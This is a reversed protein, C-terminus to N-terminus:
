LMGRYITELFEDRWTKIDAFDLKHSQITIPPFFGSLHRLINARPYLFILASPFLARLFKPVCFYPCAFILARPFLPVCFYPCAFILARLFLPVRFYPCAYIQARPFLPVHARPCTLCTPVRACRACLAHSKAYEAGLTHKAASGNAIM